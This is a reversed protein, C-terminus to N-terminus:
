GDGGELTRELTGAPNGTGGAFGLGRAAEAQAKLIRETVAGRRSIRLVFERAGVHTWHRSYRGDVKGDVGGTVVAPAAAEASFGLEGDTDSDYNCRVLLDVDADPCRDMTEQAEDVLKQIKKIPLSKAEGMVVQGKQRPNM